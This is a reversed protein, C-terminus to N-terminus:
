SNDLRRHSMNDTDHITSLLKSLDNSAPRLPKDPMSASATACESPCLEVVRGESRNIDVLGNDALHAGNLIEAALQVDGLLKILPNVLDISVDHRIIRGDLDFCSHVTDVAAVELGILSQVLSERNLLHPYLNEVTKRSIRLIYRSVARVVVGDDEKMYECSIPQIRLSHHNTTMLRWQNVVSEAGQANMFSTDSTMIKRVFEYQFQQQIPCSAFGDKFVQYYEDIIRVAANGLFMSTPERVVMANTALDHLHQELRQNELTALEIQKSLTSTLDNRKQRSNRQNIKWQLRRKEKLAEDEDRVPKRKQAPM